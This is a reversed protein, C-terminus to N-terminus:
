GRMQPTGWLQVSASAGCADFPRQQLTSVLREQVGAHLGILSLWAMRWAGISAGLLHVVHDRTAFWEDFLYQDLPVLALGKPGGSAAPIVRVDAPRLGHNRLHQLARPGAHVELAQM